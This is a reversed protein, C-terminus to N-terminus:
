KRTMCYIRVRYINRYTHIFSSKMYINHYNSISLSLTYVHPINEEHIHKVSEQWIGAATYKLFRSTVRRAESLLSTDVLQNQNKLILLRIQMVTGKLYLHISEM